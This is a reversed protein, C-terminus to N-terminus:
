AWRRGTSSWSRIGHRDKGIKLRGIAIAVLCQSDARFRSRRHRWLFLAISRSCSTRAVCESGPSAISAPASPQGRRPDAGRSKPWSARQSGGSFGVCRGISSPLSGLLQTWSTTEHICNKFRSIQWPQNATHHGPQRFRDAATRHIRVTERLDDLDMRGDPESKIMINRVHLCRLIKNLSYHTDESYYLLGEPYTERALFIGYLNGATGGNTVYGWTSDAPGHVLERFIGLVEREFEHTNLHYNSPVYPDGVNNLPYALFRYLPSYDFVANCPYGMFLRAERDLKAELADLRAQDASSLQSEAIADM